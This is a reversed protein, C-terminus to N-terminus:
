DVSTGRRWDEPSAVGPRPLDAWTCGGLLVAYDAELNVRFLEEAPEGEWAGDIANSAVLTGIEEASMGARLGIWHHEDLPLTPWPAGGVSVDAVAILTPREPGAMGLIMEEFEGM